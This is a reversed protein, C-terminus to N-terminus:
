RMVILRRLRDAQPPAPAHMHWAAIFLVTLGAMAPMIFVVIGVSCELVGLRGRVWTAHGGTCHLLLRLLVACSLAGEGQAM